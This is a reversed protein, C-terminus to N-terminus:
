KKGVLITFNFVILWKEIDKEFPQGELKDNKITSIFPLNM